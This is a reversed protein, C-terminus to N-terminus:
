AAEADADDEALINALIGDIHEDTADLAQEATYARARLRNICAMPDTHSWGIDYQSDAQGGCEVCPGPQRKSM